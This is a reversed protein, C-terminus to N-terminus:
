RDTFRRLHLAVASRNPWIVTRFGFSTTTFAEQPKENRERNLFVLEGAKPTEKLECTVLLEVEERLGAKLPSVEEEARASSTVVLFFCIAVAEFRAEFAVWAGNFSKSPRIEIAEM